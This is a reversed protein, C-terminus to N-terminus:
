EQDEGVMAAGCEPCNQETCPTGREHAMTAGCKPCVCTDTGGTGQPPNGQGQGQRTVAKFRVIARLGREKTRSQGEIGQERALQELIPIEDAYGPLSRIWDANEDTDNLHVTPM